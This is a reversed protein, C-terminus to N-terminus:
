SFVPVFKEVVQVVPEQESGLNLELAHAQLRHGDHVALTPLVYAREVVGPVDDHHQVPALVPQFAVPEEEEDLFKELVLYASSTTLFNKNSFM